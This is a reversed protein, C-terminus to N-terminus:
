LDTILVGSVLARTEVNDEVKQANNLIQLVPTTRPARILDQRTHLPKFATQM